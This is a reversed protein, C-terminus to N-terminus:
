MCRGPGLAPGEAESVGAPVHTRSRGASLAVIEPGRPEVTASAQQGAPSHLRCSHSVSLVGVLRRRRFRM